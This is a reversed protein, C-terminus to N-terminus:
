MADFRTFSCAVFFSLKTTQDGSINSLSAMSNNPTSAPAGDQQFFGHENEEYRLNSLIIRSNTCHATESNVNDSL